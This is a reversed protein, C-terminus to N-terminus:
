EILGRLGRRAEASRLAPLLHPQEPELIAALDVNRIGGTHVGIARIGTKTANLSERYEGTDVPALQKARSVIAEHFDLSNKEVRRKIEEELQRNQKFM